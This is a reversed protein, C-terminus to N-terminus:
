DKLNAFPRHGDYRSKFNEILESETEEADELERAACWCFLLNDADELQWIYRGGWHGVPEGSGFRIYQSIRKRLTARSSNGGAKGIYVVCTDKVWNTRLEDVSVNPNREKFHGGSGEPVFVPDTDDTRVVMYVGARDLEMDAMAEDSFIGASKLMWVPMFGKFGAKKLDEISKFKMITGNHNNETMTPQYATSGTNRQINMKVPAATNGSIPIIWIRGKQYAHPLRGARLLERLPKGPRQESDRLLGNRELVANAKPADIQTLGEQIMYNDLCRIIANINM